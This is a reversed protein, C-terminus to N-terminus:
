GASKFYNVQALLATMERRAQEDRDTGRRSFEEEAALERLRCQEQLEQQAKRYNEEARQLASQHLVQQQHMDAQAMEAM